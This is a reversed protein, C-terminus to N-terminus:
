SHFIVIGQHFFSKSIVPGSSRLEDIKAIIEMPLTYITAWVVPREGRFSALGQEIVARSLEFYASPAKSLRWEAIKLLRQYCNELM